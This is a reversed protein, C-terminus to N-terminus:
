GADAYRAAQGTAAQGNCPIGGVPRAGVWLARVGRPERFPEVEPVGDRVQGAARARDLVADLDRYTVKRFKM